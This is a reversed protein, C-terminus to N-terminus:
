VKEGIWLSAQSPNEPIEALSSAYFNPYSESWWWSRYHQYPQTRGDADQSRLEDGAQAAASLHWAQTNSSFMAEDKPLAPKSICQERLPLHLLKLVCYFPPRLHGQPVNNVRVTLGLLLEMRKSLFLYERIIDNFLGLKISLPCFGQM